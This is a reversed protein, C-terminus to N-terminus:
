KLLVIKRTQIFDGAQLKYFYIGASVSQGTDYNGDWIVKYQGVPKFENVLTKVENGMVDFIVINVDSDNPISFEIETIPNFPNPFNQDLEFKEPLNTGDETSVSIKGYGNLELRAFTNGYLDGSNIYLVGSIDGGEVPNFIIPISYESFPPIEFGSNDGLSFNNNDSLNIYDVKFVTDRHNRIAYWIYSFNGVITSDFEASQRDDSLGTGGTFGRDNQTSNIDNYFVNDDGSDICQSSPLLQYDNENANVFLPNDSNNGIRWDFTSETNLVMKEEQKYVTSYFAWMRKRIGDDMCVIQNSNDNDNWLISNFLLFRSYGRLWILTDGQHRGITSNFFYFNSSWCNISQGYGGTCSNGYILVNTLYFNCGDLARIAGGGYDTRNKRLVTNRIIINANRGRIGGGDATTINNEILCYYLTSNSNEAYIGGGSSSNNWYIHLYKLIPNSNVIYIGGGSTFGYNGETGGGNTISFGVLEANRSEGNVFSVVSGTGSGDIITQSVHSTDNTTLFLSGVVIDKGKYDINELYLGRQVLVTYGDIAHDIGLQITNYNTPVNIITSFCFNTLIVVFLLSQIKTIM